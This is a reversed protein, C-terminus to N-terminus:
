VWTPSWVHIQWFWFPVQMGTWMPYFFASVAVVLILFVIVIRRYIPAREPAPQPGVLGLLLGIVYVAALFLYPEFVIAYFQFMTRTPYALWPLYGAGIGALILGIRWDRRRFLLYVLFLACAVSAWWLIPNAISWVIEACYNFQCGNQGTASGRYYIQTPRALLPWLIAPTAYPHTVSLGTHFAYISAHWHWLNQIADPVWATLGTWREGGKAIWNRDYGNTSLFWGSFTALYAALAIPVTSVLAVPITRIGGILSYRIGRSRRALYDTIVVYALFGVLYYIGSWKVGSMLGFALGAAILWPRWLLAPGFIPPHPSDVPHPRLMFWTDLRRERSERDLLIAGFGLLGFLMLFNDLLSLRSLVIAHGDIAFFGAAITALLPSHFLRKAIFFLLLVAITGAIAVSFRWGFTNSPGFLAMGIAILWKGLPPHAVYQPDTTYGWPDGANFTDDSYGKPWQGEYGLNALTWADKVYFTEDFMLSSPTGLNQLRLILALLTVGIPAGWTWLRLRATASLSPM